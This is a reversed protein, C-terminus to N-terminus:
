DILMLISFCVFFCVFFSLFLMISNVSFHSTDFFEGDAKTARDLEKLTAARHSCPGTHLTTGLDSFVGHLGAKNIAQVKIDSVDIDSMLHRVVFSTVPGTNVKLVRPIVVDRQTVTIHKEKATYVIQYDVIPLGGDHFPPDWALHICSSTVKDYRFFLPAMPAEPEETRIIENTMSSWESWGRLNRCRFEFDFYESGARLDILRCGLSAIPDRLAWLSTTVPQCDNCVKFYRGTELNMEMYRVRFKIEYEFVPLGGDYIPTDWKWVISSCGKSIIVANRPPKPVFTALSTEVSVNVDFISKSSELESLKGNAKMCAEDHAKFLVSLIRRQCRLCIEFLAEAKVKNSVKLDSSIKEEVAPVQPVKLHGRMLSIRRELDSLADIKSKGLRSARNVDHALRKLQSDLKFQHDSRSVITQENVSAMSISFSEEVHQKSINRNEDKMAILLDDSIGGKEISEHLKRAAVRKRLEIAKPKLDDEKTDLTFELLM